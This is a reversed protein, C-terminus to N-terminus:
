ALVKELIDIFMGSDAFYNPYSQKLAAISEAAVLVVNINQEKYEEELIMYKETARVSYGKAYHTIDILREDIKLSLLFYGAGTQM